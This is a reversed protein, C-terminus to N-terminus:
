TTSIINPVGAEWKDAEFSLCEPDERKM